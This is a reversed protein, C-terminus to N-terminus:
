HELFTYRGLHKDQLDMSRLCMALNSYGLTFLLFFLSMEMELFVVSFDRGVLSHVLRM